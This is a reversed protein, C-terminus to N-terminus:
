EADVGPCVSSGAAEEGPTQAEPEVKESTKGYKGGNKFRANIYCEHSCYKRNCNGYAAFEAGCFQCFQFYYAKKITHQNKHM